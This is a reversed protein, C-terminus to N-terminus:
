TPNPGVLLQFQQMSPVAGQSKICVKHSQRLAHDPPFCPPSSLFSLSPKQRYLCTNLQLPNCNFADQATIAIPFSAKEKTHTTSYRHHDSHELIPDLAVANSNTPHGHINRSPIRSAQHLGHQICIPCHVLICRLLQRSLQPGLDILSFVEPRTTTILSM